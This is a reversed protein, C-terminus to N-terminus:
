HLRYPFVIVATQVTKEGPPLPEFRWKRLSNIAALELRSDAKILPFITGVTGDPMITFRLKVNIQKAVGKPYAPLIYSYIKRVGNGAFDIQFGSNGKGSSNKRGKNKKVIEKKKPTPKVKKKKAATVNKNKINKNKITHLNVKKKKIANKVNTKGSPATQGFSGFGVTVFQIERPEVSFTIIIFLLILILHIGFSILYSLNKSNRFFM